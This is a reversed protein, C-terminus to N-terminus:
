QCAAACPSLPHCRWPLRPSQYCVRLLLALLPPSTGGCLVAAAPCGCCGRRACCCAPPCALEGQAQRPSPHVAQTVQHVRAAAGGSLPAAGAASSGDEVFANLLDADASTVLSLRFTSQLVVMLLVSARWDVQAAKGGPAAAGRGGAGGGSGGDGAAAAAAAPQLDPPLTAARAQRRRVFLRARAAAAAEDTYVFFLM